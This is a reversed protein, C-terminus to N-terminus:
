KVLVLIFKFYFRKFKSSNRLLEKEADDHYSMLSKLEDKSITHSSFRAKLAIEKIEEPISMGVVFPSASISFSSSFCWILSLVLTLSAASSVFFETKNKM